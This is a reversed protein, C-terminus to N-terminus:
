ELGVRRYFAKLRATAEKDAIHEISIIKSEENITLRQKCQYVYLEGKHTLNDTFHVFYQDENIKEIESQGWELKDFKKRGDIMNDEYLKAIAQPGVLTKDGIDYRCDDAIVSKTLEFDDQDLSRGFIIAAEQKTM